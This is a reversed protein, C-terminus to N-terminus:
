SNLKINGAGGADIVIGCAKTINDHVIVFKGLQPIKSHKEIPIPKESIFKINAAEGQSVYKKNKDIVSGSRPDIINIIKEIKCAAATTGCRIDVIDGVHLDLPQMVYIQSIFGKAVNTINDLHSAVEGRKILFKGNNEIGDLLMGISDGAEARKSECGITKISILNCKIGSPMFILKDGVNVVGTEVRGVIIKKRDVDYIDQVIIRLPTDLPKRNPKIKSDMVDILAVGDYWKMNESKKYVNDGEIASIPIFPVDNVNYGMKKLLNMVENSIKEYVEKSYGVTDMKNIVVIIQDIGLIKSLWLHEKTQNQIGEGNKASVLLLAADAHSAGTIMNKIFERHGPCDIFMYENKKGKFPTHMIDITIGGEREEEFTDMFFAFDIKEKGLKKAADKADKLREESIAGSDYLMRGILTSKGHDVHGITVINIIESGNNM